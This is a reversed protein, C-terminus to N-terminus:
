LNDYAVLSLFMNAPFLSLHGNIHCYLIHTSCLVVILVFFMICYSIRTNGVNSGEHRRLQRAKGKGTRARVTPRKM